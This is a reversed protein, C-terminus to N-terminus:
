IGTIIKVVKSPAEDKAPEVIGLTNHQQSATNAIALLAFARKAAEARPINNRKAFANLDDLIKGSIEISYSM